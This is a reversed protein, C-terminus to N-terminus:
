KEEKEKAKEEEEKREYYNKYGPKENDGTDWKKGGLAIASILTIVSLAVAIIPLVLRNNIITGVLALIAAVIFAAGIFINFKRFAVLDKSFLGRFLFVLALAACGVAIVWSFNLNGFSDPMVISLLWVVAVAVLVLAICVKFIANKRM